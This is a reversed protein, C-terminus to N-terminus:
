GIAVFGTSESKPQVYSFFFQIGGSLNIAEFDVPQWIDLNAANKGERKVNKGIRPVLRVGQCLSTKTSFNSAYHSLLSTLTGRILGQKPTSWASM